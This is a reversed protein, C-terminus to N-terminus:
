SDEGVFSVYQLFRIETDLFILQTLPYILDDEIRMPVLVIIGTLIASVGYLQRGKWFTKFCRSTNITHRTERLSVLLTQQSRHKAKRKEVALVQLMSSTSTSTGKLENHWPVFPYINNPLSSSNPSHTLM